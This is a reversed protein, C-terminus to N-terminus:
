NLPEGAHMIGFTAGRDNTSSNVNRDISFTCIKANISSRHWFYADCWFITLVFTTRFKIEYLCTGLRMHRDRVLPSSPPEFYM